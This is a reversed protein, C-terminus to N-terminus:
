SWAIPVRCVGYTCNRFVIANCIVFPEHSVKALEWPHGIKCSILYLSPSYPPCYTPHIQMVLGPNVFGLARRKRAMENCSPSHTSVATDRVKSKRGRKRRREIDSHTQTPDRQLRHRDTASILITAVTTFQLAGNPTHSKSNIEQKQSRFFSHQSLLWKALYCGTRTFEHLYCWVCM